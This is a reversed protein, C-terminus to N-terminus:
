FSAGHTEEGGKDGAHHGHGQDAADDGCVFDIHDVIAAGAVMMGRRRRRRVVLRVVPRSRRRGGLMMVVLRSRRRGMVFGMVLRRRRVLRMMGRRDMLRRRVLRLGRDIVLRGHGMGLRHHLLRSRLLGLTRGHLPRRGDLSRGHLLRNLPGRGDLPRRSDLSRSHLLRGGAARLTGAGTRGRM